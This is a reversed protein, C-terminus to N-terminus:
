EEGPFDEDPAPEEVPKEKSEPEGSSGGSELEENLQEKLKDLEDKLEADKSQINSQGASREFKALAYEVDEKVTEINRAFFSSRAFNQVNKYYDNIKTQFSKQITHLSDMSKAVITSQRATALEYSREALENYQESINSFDAKLTEIETQQPPTYGSLEKSASKLFNVAPGYNKNMSAAYAQLLLGEAKLVPNAAISALEAGAKDCDAWQRAKLATWGLGLLADQYYSGSKDVSRLATVAKALSGEQAAVQEFFIYGLFVFSRDIIEKQAKNKPSYQIANELSSLAGDINDQMADAVAASHQAFPFDPHTEPILNFLQKAKSFNSQKLEAQGMYYYGHYKISDPVGLKNLENFQSEVADYRNDRYFVRMLGLDAFSVASSKSYQEKTKLYAKEATAGMDMNEQCSGIFFSVWDNKPFDPYEVFLETFLSRADWYNGQNYLEIAKTYLDNPRLDFRKAMRRAYIEERHKGIDVRGYMTISSVDNDKVGENDKISMYQFIFSVDRGNYISPLNLGGAFGLGELGDDSLNVIGYLNVFRMIWGGVKANVEIESGPTSDQHWLTKDTGLDKVAVDITSEIKREWYTSNLSARFTRPLVDDGSFFVNQLALGLLHTGIAPHTFLKYSLGIDAGFGLSTEGIFSTINTNINAGVTLGKWFNNAYSLTVFNKGDVVKPRDTYIEGKDNTQDYAKVNQSTFNIGASQYLGIPYVGSLEHIQFESLTSNFAYKLSLYNEENIFSPNTLASRASFIYHWRQSILHEGPLGDAFLQFVPGAGCVFIFILFPIRFLRNLFNIM